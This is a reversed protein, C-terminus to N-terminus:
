RMALRRYGGSQLDLLEIADAGIATVKYRDALTQGETVMFLADGSGGVIATRKPGGPTSEEAIGMLSLQPPPVPLAEPVDPKPAAPLEARARRRERPAFSFPNRSTLDPAPAMALRERLRSAEAQVQRDLADATAIPRSARERARLYEQSPSSNAAALYAVLLAGGTVYVAARTLSMLHEPIITASKAHRNQAGPEPNWTPTGSELNWM